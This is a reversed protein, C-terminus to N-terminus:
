LHRAHRDTSFEQFYYVEGSGVVRVRTPAYPPFPLFNFIEGRRFTVNDSVDGPDNSFVRTKMVGGGGGREGEPTRFNHEEGGGGGAQRGASM